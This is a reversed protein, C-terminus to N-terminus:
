IGYWGCFYPLALCSCQILRLLRGEGISPVAASEGVAVLCSSLVGAVPLLPVPM